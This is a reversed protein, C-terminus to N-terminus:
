NRLLARADSTMVVYKSNKYKEPVWSFRCLLEPVQNMDAATHLGHHFGRSYEEETFIWGAYSLQAGKKVDHTTFVCTLERDSVDPGSKCEVAFDVHNFIRRTDRVFPFDPHLQDFWHAYAKALVHM